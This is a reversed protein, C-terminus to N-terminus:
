IKENFIIWSTDNGRPEDSYDPRKQSKAPQPRAAADPAPQPKAAIPEPKSSKEKTAAKEEKEKKESNVKKKKSFLERLSSFDKKIILGIGQTNLASRTFYRDNTQNYVKLAFNGNPRLLYRIDFDGIFSPTAKTANDRYGFQGNILLRNNLLRGSIIGEYEANNWGESGTSINAGFNWKDSKIVSNLLNNVQSSLTGSLLSSMALSTKGSSSEDANNTGQTYFRGVSLLYLVQQNMEQESNIISRIMQAEEANVSPLDLDFDIVPQSPRGTINMLCNVRLTNNSFSSGINLDGLSVGQVTHVAQLNLTANYPDGGFIITGGENFFFKKSILNQITIGYTGHSVTYTGFMNFPGKNYYTARLDGDGTLTIYDNAKADMLIKLSAKPTANIHFNIYIDSPIDALDQRPVLAGDSTTTKPANWVIFEQNNIVDTQAANYSFVSNAEPTVDVNVVVEGSKGHIDVHGTTYVTGCISGGDFHDNDYSLLNHTNLYLDYTLRKLDHHHIGGSLYAKNGYKDTLLQENLEIENHRFVITDNKLWYTTNLPSITAHGDAILEGTLNIADLPGALRLSGHANGTIESIFSQTFSHMFDIYTGDAFIDLDIYNHSPSVYGNIHTQAGPGDYAIAHIDIQESDKNWDVLAKLTGMHGEQFTFENVTLNAHASLDNFPSSIYALGSVKGGFDVSHFNVLDLLYAVDVDSLDVHITDSNETSATGDIIIHQQGNANHLSFQYVDAHKEYYVIDSPEMEWTENNMIIHSPQVKIHAEPKGHINEYLSTIANINGKMVKQDQYNKWRISTTLNNDAAHALVQWNMLDGGSMVKTVAGDFFLSDGPSTIMINGDHYYSDNYSFEPVAANLQITNTADNVIAHLSLPKQLSTNMNFIRQLWQADTMTLELTFNNKGKRTTSPLGPLTPLRTGILNIFSQPLTEYTFDGKLMGQAFDSDLEVFHTGDDDFGLLLGLHEIEYPEEITPDLLMFHRIDIAGQADNLNNATLDAYLEASFQSDGWRESLGLVKPSINAITGILHIDYQKSRRIEGSLDAQLNPDNINVNGTWLATTYQGSLKIDHYSYGKFDVHSVTGEVNVKAKNKPTLTGSTHFQASLRGLQSKKLLSDLHLNETTVDATFVRQQDISAKISAHGMGTALKGEAQLGGHEGSFSGQLCINGMHTFFSPFSKQQSIFGQAITRINPASLYLRELEVSWSPQQELFSIDGKGIIQIGGDKTMMSLHQLQVKQPTGSFKSSLLIPEQLLKLSPELFTLDSPTIPSKNIEGQFRITTFDPKDNKWQYAADLTKFELISQPLQLHFDELKASQKGGTLKFALKEIQLGSQEKFSLRKVNIHISDDKLTKLLLHASIDKISLHKLNLVGPTRPQDYQDYTVSSHRMILSNIRLDLPTHSTTDKSALSDIIFQINTEAGANARYVQLHGGFIQISSISIKKQTLAWLDIKLTLRNAKLLKKQRQDYILVDDIVLRNFFGLDVQGINVKTGLRNEIAHATYKGISRQVVPIHILVIISVYLVISTWFLRNFFLKLKRVSYFSLVKQYMSIAISEKEM